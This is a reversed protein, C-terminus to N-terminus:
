PVVTVPWKGARVLRVGLSGVLRHGAHTSVGVVVLDARTEDAVRSFEGFPDGHRVEFTADIGYYAAGEELVQELNQVLESQATAATASGPALGYFAPTTAVYLVVLRSGQRRALGGAYAAARLSTETGDVGVLILSPGDKSEPHAHYEQREQPEGRDEQEEEVGDDEVGDTSTM